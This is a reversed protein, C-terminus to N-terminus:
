RRRMLRDLLSRRGQHAASGTQERELEALENKDLTAQREEQALAM